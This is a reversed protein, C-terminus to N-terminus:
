GEYATGIKKFSEIENETVSNLKKKNEIEDFMKQIKDQDNITNLIQNSKTLM